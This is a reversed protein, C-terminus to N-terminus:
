FPRDLGDYIYQILWRGDRKVLDFRYIGTTVLSTEAASACLAFPAMVECSDDTLKQVIPNTMLHRRQDTQTEWIGCLWSVVKERGEERFDSHGSVSGAFVADETFVDELVDRRREDYALGYRYLTEVVMIRDVARELTTPVAQVRGLELEGTGHAWAPACDGFTNGNDSM